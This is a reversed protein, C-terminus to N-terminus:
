RFNNPFVIQFQNRINDKEMYNFNECILCTIEFLFDIIKQLDLKTIIEKYKNLQPLINGISAPDLEAVELQNRPYYLFRYTNAVAIKLSLEINKKNDELKDRQDKTLNALVERNEDM